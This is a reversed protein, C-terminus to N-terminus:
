KRCKAGVVFATSILRGVSQFYRLAFPLSAPGAALALSCDSQLPATSSATAAHLPQPLCLRAAGALVQRAGTVARDLHTLTVVNASTVTVTTRIEVEPNSTDRYNATKVRIGGGAVAEWTYRAVLM